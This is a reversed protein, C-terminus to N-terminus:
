EFNTFGQAARVYILLAAATLSFGALYSIALGLAGLRPVLLFAVGCIISFLMVDFYFRRWASTALVAQGVSTNLSEAVASFCLIVLIPAGALYSPGFYGMARRACFVILVAPVCVVVSVVMVNGRLLKGFGSPDGAGKFNALIPLVSNAISSPVFLLLLRYRDAASYLGLQRYGNAQQVVLWTCLWMGPVGILSSLLAPLSTRYMLHTESWCRRWKWAIGRQGCVQRLVIHNLAWTAAMAASIGWVAGHIGGRYAGFVIMPCSAIGSCVNVRAMARFAELGALAGTQYGNLATFLVLLSAIRLPLVLAAAHLIHVAVFPAAAVTALALTAGSILAIASSLGLIRGTREPDSIRFEAVHRAATVGLGAGALTAAIGVTSQVIAFVGFSEAGLLRATFMSAVFTAGRAAGQGAISWVVAALYRARLGRGPAGAPRQGIVATERVVAQCEASV